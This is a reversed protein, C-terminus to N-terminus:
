QLSLPSETDPPGSKRPADFRITRIRTFDELPQLCLIRLVQRFFLVPSSWQHVVATNRFFKWVIVGECWIHYNRLRATSFDFERNWRLM